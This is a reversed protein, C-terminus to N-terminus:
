RRSGDVCRRLYRRDDVPRIPRDTMEAVHSAEGLGCM